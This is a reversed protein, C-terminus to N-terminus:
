EDITFDIILCNPNICNNLVETKSNREIYLIDAGYEKDFLPEVYVMRDCLTMIHTEDEEMELETIFYNDIDLVQLLAKTTEYSSICCVEINEVDTSDTMILEVLEEVNDYNESHIHRNQKVWM